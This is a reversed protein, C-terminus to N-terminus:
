YLHLAAPLVDPRREGRLVRDVAQMASALAFDSFPKHLCGLALARGAEAPCNGTAFLVPLDRARLAAAVEIGSGGAGLRVDVLALDPRGAEAERLASPLDDASGVPEHGAMALMAELELAVLAEDEVILM